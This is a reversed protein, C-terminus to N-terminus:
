RRTKNWGFVTSFLQMNGKESAENRFFHGFIDTVKRVLIVHRTKM